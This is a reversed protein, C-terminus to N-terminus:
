VEDRENSGKTEIGMQRYHHTEIHKLVRTTGEM